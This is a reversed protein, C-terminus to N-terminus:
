SPDDFEPRTSRRNAALVRKRIRINLPTVEVMEDDRIFEMAQELSMIRPPTLITNEDRGAARINTLHKERCVNVNLDNERIHEGVVMGEYVKFQAPVFLTGRPQM